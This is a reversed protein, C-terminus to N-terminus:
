YDKIAVGFRIKLFLCSACVDGSALCSVSGDHRKPKASREVM